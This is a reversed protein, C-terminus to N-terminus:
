ATTVQPTAARDSGDTVSRTMVMMSASSYQGPVVVRAASTGQRNTVPSRGLWARCRWRPLM